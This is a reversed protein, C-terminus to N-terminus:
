GQLGIVPSFPNTARSERRIEAAGGNDSDPNVPNAPNEPNRNAWIANRAMVSIGGFRAHILTRREFVLRYFGSFGIIGYIRIRVLHSDMNAWLSFPKAARSEREIVGDNTRLRSDLPNSARRGVRALRGRCGWGLRGGDLPFPNTTRSERKIETLTGRWDAWRPCPSEGGWENRM